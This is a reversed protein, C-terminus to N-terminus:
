RPILNNLAQVRQNIIAEVQDPFQLISYPIFVTTKIGSPLLLSVRQGEVLQGSMNPSTAETASLITVGAPLKIGNDTTTGTDEM